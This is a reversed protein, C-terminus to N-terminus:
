VDYIHCGVMLANGILLPVPPDFRAGGAAPSLTQELDIFLIVLSLALVLERSDLSFAPVFVRLGLWHIIDAPAALLEAPVTGSAVFQSIRQHPLGWKVLLRYSAGM